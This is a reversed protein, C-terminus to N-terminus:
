NSLVDQDHAKPLSNEFQAIDEDFEKHVVIKGKKNKANRKDKHYQSLYCNKCIGKAYLVRDKHPCKTALKTRGKSHYCNQCMGNAYYAQDTHGCKFINKRHKQIVKTKKHAAHACDELDKSDKQIDESTVDSPM